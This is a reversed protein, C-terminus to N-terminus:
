GKAVLTLEPKEELKALRNLIDMRQEDHPLLVGSEWALVIWLSEVVRPHGQWLSDYSTIGFRRMTNVILDEELEGQWNAPRMLQTSLRACICPYFPARCGLKHSQETHLCFHCEGGSGGCHECYGNKPNRQESIPKNM